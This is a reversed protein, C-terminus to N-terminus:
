PKGMACALMTSCLNVQNNLSGIAKCVDTLHFMGCVGKGYVIIICHIQLVLKICVLLQRFVFAGKVKDHHCSVSDSM